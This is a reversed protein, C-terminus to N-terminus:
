GPYYCATLLYCVLYQDVAAAAVVAFVVVVVVAVPVM